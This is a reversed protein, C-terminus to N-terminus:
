HIARELKELRTKAIGQRWAFVSPVVQFLKEKMPPNTKALVVSRTEGGQHPQCSNWRPEDDSIQATLIVIQAMEKQHSLRVRM